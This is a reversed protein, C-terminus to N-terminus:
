RKRQSIETEDFKNHVWVFGERWEIFKDQAINDM